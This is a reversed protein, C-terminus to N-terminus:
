NVNLDIISLEPRCFLRLPPAQGREMGVGRSVYILNGNLESLGGGAVHNPVRTATILPGFGPIQVQGGHTHGAVVLDVNSDPRLHLAIDPRHSLLIRVDADDASELRRVTDAAGPSDYQTKIGGIAFTLGRVKTRLVDELILQVQTGDIMSTLEHIEDVDGKVLYVGGLAHLRGLLDRTAEGQERFVDSSGQLVDGPLLIIDPQHAMARRVVDREYDTVRRFQLDALVVVKIQESDHGALKLPIAATCEELRYPEVFTAYYAIAPACCCIFVLGWVAPTLSYKHKRSTKATLVTMVAVVPAAIALDAYILHLVGFLGVGAIVLVPLKLAFAASGAVVVGLAESLGFRAVAEGNPNRRFTLMRLAVACALIDVVTSGVILLHFRTMPDLVGADLSRNPLVRPPDWQGRGDIRRIAQIAM